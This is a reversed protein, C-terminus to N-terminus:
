HRPWRARAWHRATCASHGKRARKSRSACRSRPRPWNCRSRAKRKTADAAIPAVYKLWQQCMAPTIQVNELVTGEQIVVQPPQRNLHIVPEVKLVGGSLPVQILGTRITGSQLEAAMTGRGVSVGMLDISQWGFHTQGQLSVPIMGPQQRSSSALADPPAQFLPGRLAFPETGSGTCRVYQEWEPVWQRLLQALDYTIQGQLDVACQGTPEVVSGQLALKLRDQSSLECRDLELRQLSPRFIGHGGAQLAPESWM